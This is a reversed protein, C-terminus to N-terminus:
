MQQQLISKFINAAEGDNGKAQMMSTEYLKLARVMAAGTAYGNRKFVETARDILTDKSEVAVENESNAAVEGGLVNPFNEKIRALVGANMKPNILHLNDNSFYDDDYDADEFDVDTMTLPEEQGLWIAKEQFAFKGGDMEGAVHVKHLNVEGMDSNKVDLDLHGGNMQLGSDKDFKCGDLKLNVSFSESLINKFDSKKANISVDNVFFQIDEFKCDEFKGYFYGEGRDPELVGGGLEGPFEEEGEKNEDEIEPNDIQLGRFVAGKILGDKKIMIGKNAPDNKKLFKALDAVSDFQKPENGFTEVNDFKVEFM